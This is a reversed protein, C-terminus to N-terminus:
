KNNINNNNMFEFNEQASQMHGVGDMAEADPGTRSTSYFKSDSRNEFFYFYLVAM